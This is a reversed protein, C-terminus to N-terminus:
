GLTARVGFHDSLTTRRGTALTVPRDLIRESTTPGAIDRVLVHDIRWGSDSVHGSGLGHNFTGRRDVGDPEHSGAAELTRFLASSPATNLDGLLIAPEGAPVKAAAWRVFAEVQPAQEAGGPSVHTALM